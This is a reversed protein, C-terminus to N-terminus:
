KMSKFINALRQAVVKPMDSLQEVAAWSGSGYLENMKNADPRKGFFIGFTVVGNKRAEKLVRVSEQHDNLLGDSMCVMIKNNEECALLSSHALSVTDGLMTGGMDGVALFAARDPDFKERMSKVQASHSGFARVEHSMDLMEFCDGLTMVADYLERKLVTEKMSGSMDVSISAAFSTKPMEKTSTYVDDMGKYANVLQRRDLRGDSQRRLRQEAQERIAKLPKAMLAAIEKHRGRRDQLGSQAYLPAKPLTVDVTVSMGSSTDRYRQSMSNDNVPLANHLPKGITTAKSRARAGNEIATAAEREVSRVASDV